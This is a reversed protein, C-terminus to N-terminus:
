GSCDEAALEWCQLQLALRGNAAATELQLGLPPAIRHYSLVKNPRAPMYASNSGAASFSVRSKMVLLGEVALGLRELCADNKHRQSARVM